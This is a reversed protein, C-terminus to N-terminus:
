MRSTRVRSEVSSLPPFSRTLPSSIHLSNSSTENLNGQEFRIKGSLGIRDTFEQLNELRERSSCVITVRYGKKVYAKLETELVNMKGSFSLTQRSQLNYVQDFRSVGAVAKPFPTFVAVNKKEYVKLFDNRDALLATDKPIVQGRELLVQFDEKMERTRLDLTEYIRDPDDIMISGDSMYDWLYETEDYFYHIYNELLQVNATQEIYECLQDATEPSKKEM